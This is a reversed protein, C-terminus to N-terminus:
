EARMMLLPDTDMARRAPLISAIGVAVVLALPAILWVAPSPGEAAPAIHMIWRATMLAGIIGTVTGVIVLRLGEVAVQGIVHRGQAGLAIRLAFERQRRRAADNMVGYLGLVGLILALAASAGVLVTTIREAAFATRSLHRELTTVIVREPRGGRVLQLRQHLRRLTSTGVGGTELIMTMRPQFDQDMPFYVMPGIDREAARVKASAVVGVIRSRVGNVDILAGDVASNAFYREAAQENVIAVRCADRQEDFARGAIISLGLTDFYNRSVVNVDLDIQPADDFEPVRYPAPEAPSPDAAPAYHLVVPRADRDRLRVVGVIDSWGTPTEISRGVITETGLQRAAEESIVVGGCQGADATSFMRGKLPPLLVAAASGATFLQRVFSMARLTRSGHEVRFSRTVPRDGPVVGVWAVNTAGTIERAVSETDAFYNAGNAAQTAKSSTQLADVSAIAAHSLRRGTSTQLASRYGALLLATTIVLMACAAMQAVVLGAGLRTSARSPGASERQMIAAPDDHRMDVLPLLGCVVTIAACGAAILAVGSANAAFHMQEADQDFLLAPLIRGIWSALVGGATAGALSLLVSDALAQRVLERRGAGVAVRVAAERSRAAARALLFVAVNACAIAFVAMAATRLLGAISAVADMPFPTEQALLGSVFGEVTANSAIGVAITLVLALTLAPTRMLGRAPYRVERLLVDLMLERRAIVIGRILM